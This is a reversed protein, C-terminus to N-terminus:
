GRSCSEVEWTILVDNGLEEVEPSVLRVADAKSAVPMGGIPGRACEGGFIMGAVYTQVADVRGSSLLSAHVSPGGEVILTDVGRKGLEALIDDWSILGDEGIPLRVVEVGPKELSAVQAADAGLSTIVLVPAEASASQILKCDSGINAKATLVIRLPQKVGLPGVEGEYRCTLQPDDVEVTQAGVLVAAFRHRDRHVRRQAEPGTLWVSNETATEIKGDATMAYKMIVYPLGTTIYHRWEKTLAACEKSLVGEDVTIGADRLQTLGKGAVQPNPDGSGVVVRSIGAEILAETCPPQKGQHCCPELTVYATAGKVNEGRSQADALAEREAHPAGFKTHWGRGIIEGDRVIVCGVMPNPNVWGAGRKALDLAALMFMEDEITKDGAWEM